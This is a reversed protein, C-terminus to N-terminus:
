DELDTFSRDWVEVVMREEERWYRRESVALAETLLDAAGPREAVTASAAALIVFAHAYAPKSDDIPGDPGIAAFWGGHEADAFPGTLAALGHDVQSAAGPRGLLHALAFTHVMRCTVYLESGREAIVQGDGDLYGFGEPTAADAAFGVLADFESELWR